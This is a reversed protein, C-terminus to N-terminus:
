AAQDEGFVEDLARVVFSGFLRDSGRMHKELWTGILYSLDYMDAAGIRIREIEQDLSELFHIHEKKHSGYGPYDTESMLAEEFSLYDGILRILIEANKNFRPVCGQRGALARLESNFANYVGVITQRQSDFNGIGLNCSEDYRIRLLDTTRYIQMVSQLGSRINRSLRTHKERAALYCHNIVYSLPTATADMLSM